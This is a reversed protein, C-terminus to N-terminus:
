IIGYILFILNRVVQNKDFEKGTLEKYMSSLGVLKRWGSNFRTFIVNIEDVYNSGNETEWLIGTLPDFGIGFSNRM